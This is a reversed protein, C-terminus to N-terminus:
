APLPTASDRAQLYRKRIYYANIPMLPILMIFAAINLNNLTSLGYDHHHPLLQIALSLPFIVALAIQTFFSFRLMSAEQPRPPDAIRYGKWAIFSLVPLSALLSVCAELIRSGTFSYTAYNAAVALIMTCFAAVVLTVRSPTWKAKAIGAARAIRLWWRLIFFMGVCTVIAMALITAAVNDTRLGVFFSIGGAAITMIAIYVMLLVFDRTKV